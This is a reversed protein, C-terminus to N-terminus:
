EAKSLAFNLTRTSKHRAVVTRCNIASTPSERVPAQGCTVASGNQIQTSGYETLTRNTTGRFSLCQRSSCHCTESTDSTEPGSGQNPPAYGEATTFLRLLLVQAVCSEEHRAYFRVRRLAASGVPLSAEETEDEKFARPLPSYRIREYEM